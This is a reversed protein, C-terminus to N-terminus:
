MTLIKYDGEWSGDFIVKQDIHIWLENGNKLYYKMWGKLIQLDLKINLGDKLNGNIIGLYQGVIIPKLKIDFSDLDVIGTIRNPGFGWDIQTTNGHEIDLEGDDADTQTVYWTNDGEDPEQLDVTGATINFTEPM